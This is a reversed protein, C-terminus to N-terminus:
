KSMDKTVRSFCGEQPIEDQDQMDKDVSPLSGEPFCMQIAKGLDWLYAFSCPSVVPPCGFTVCLACAGASCCVGTDNM